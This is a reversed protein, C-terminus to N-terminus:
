GPGRHGFERSHGREAPGGSLAPVRHGIPRGTALRHSEVAGVRLRLPTQAAMRRSGPSRRPRCTTRSRWQCGDLRGYSRRPRQTPRPGAPWGRRPGKRRRQGSQDVPTPRPGRRGNQGSGRFGPRSNGRPRRGGAYARQEGEGQPDAHHPDAHEVEVSCAWPASSAASSAPARLAASAAACSRSDRPGHRAVRWLDSPACPMRIWWVVPM